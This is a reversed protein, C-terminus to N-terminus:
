PRAYEYPSFGADHCANKAERHATYAQSFAESAQHWATSARRFDDLLEQQEPTLPSM